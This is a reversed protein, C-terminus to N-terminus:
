FPIKIRKSSLAATITLLSPFGRPVRIKPGIARSNRSLFKVFITENAGSTNYTQKKTQKSGLKETQLPKAIIGTAEGKLKLVSRKTKFRASFFVRLKKKLMKVRLKKKLM